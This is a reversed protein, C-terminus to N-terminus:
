EGIVKLHKESVVTLNDLISKNVFSMARITVNNAINIKGGVIVCSAGIDVNDGINVFGNTSALGITTNQRIECNEGISCYGTIVVGVPHGM